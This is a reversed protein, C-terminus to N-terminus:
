GSASRDPSAKDINIIAGKLYPKTEYRTINMLKKTIEGMKGTQSLITDLNKQIPADEDTIMKIIETQGLVVQLPQNIEHCVAGAMELVGEIKEKQIKDKEAKELDTIDNLIIVMGRYKDSIDLMKKIRIQFLKVGQKTVLRKELTYDTTSQDLGPLINELFDPIEKEPIMGKSYYTSGPISSEGFLENWAHNYNEVRNEENILVVPAHITEFITLYRNKENIVERNKTQLELMKTNESQSCWETCFGLEMRDFFREVKIRYKDRYLGPEIGHEILEMYSQRYYKLLGLFMALSIGRERHRRAELIGFSAAPGITYDEDPSLELENPCSLILTYSIGSISLRWAETLTSSYKSYNHKKAYFLIREM